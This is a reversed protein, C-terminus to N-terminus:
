GGEAADNILQGDDCREASRAVHRARDGHVTSRRSADAADRRQAALGRLDGEEDRWTVAAGFGLDDLDQALLQDQSGGVETLLWGGPRLLLAASVVLERVLTLGDHGGDLAERPEFRQVDRPLFELAATPVYPAVATVVDFRGAVLPCGLDGRVVTVGNRQACRVARQDIDVAVVRAQSAAMLALAIAGSGTCLDAVLSGPGSAEAMAVARLALEETQRRPVYVGPDVRVRRGCFETSGTIWALPEGQERRAVLSELAADDPAADVLEHAEEEAAVCGAAALRSAVRDIAHVKSEM